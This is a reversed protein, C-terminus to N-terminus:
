DRRWLWVMGSVLLWALGSIVFGILTAVPQYRFVIEHEGAPIRIARFLYDAQLIETEVEDVTARWGSNWTDSLV